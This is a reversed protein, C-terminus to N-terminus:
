LINMTKDITYIERSRFSVQMHYSFVSYSRESRGIQKVKLDANVFSDRYHYFLVFLSQLLSFSQEIM